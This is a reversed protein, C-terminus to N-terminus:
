IRHTKKNHTKKSHSKKGDNKKSHSKKSGTNTAGVATKKGAAKKAVSNRLPKMSPLTGTRLAKLLLEFDRTSQDAYDVGFKVMARDLKDSNGLYGFLKCPDGSRAHGKALLEGCVRAYQLLGNGELDEDEIGAKHDKLQRVLYNRDDINTWGLFIDSQVLMRHAGEVVRQGNHLPAENEPLYPAYASADEEKLQMFLPDDIAAGFMLVVYDRVGVSGTGVVRFAVDAPRYQAFM